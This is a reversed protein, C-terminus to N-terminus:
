IQTGVPDARPDAHCQPCTGCAHFRGSADHGDVRAPHTGRHRRGGCAHTRIVARGAVAQDCDEAAGRLRQRVQAAQVRGAAAPSRRTAPGGPLDNVAWAATSAWAALFLLGSTLKQLLNNKM